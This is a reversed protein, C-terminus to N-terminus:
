RRLVRILGGGLLILVLLGSLLWIWYIKLTELIRDTFGAPSRAILATIAQEKVDHSAAYDQYRRGIGFQLGALVAQAVPIHSAIEGAPSVMTLEFYGDRGLVYGHVNASGEDEDGGKEPSIAGWILKHEGADYGPKVLWGKVEILPDGRQQRAANGQETSAKLNKLLTDANWDRAEDDLIHTGAHYDIFTIWNEESSPVVIGILDADQGYGSATAWIGAEPQRVFNAGQPIHLTAQNALTVDSPGPQLVKQMADVASQLTQAQQLGQQDQAAAVSVGGLLFVAAVASVFFGRADM